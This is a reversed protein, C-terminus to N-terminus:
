NGRKREFGYQLKPFRHKLFNLHKTVFIAASLSFSFDSILENDIKFCLRCAIFMFTCMLSYSFGSSPAEGVCPQSYLVAGRIAEM